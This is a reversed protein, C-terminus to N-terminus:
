LPNSLKNKESKSYEEAEIPGGVRQFKKEAGVEEEVFCM